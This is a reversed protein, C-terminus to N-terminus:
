DNAACSADHNALLAKASPDTKPVIQAKFGDKSTSTILGEFAKESEHGTFFDIHGGRVGGGGKDGAFVYGDHILERGQYTFPRGRLDPIYLVTEMPVYNADVAITRFPMMPIDRAGCGMPHALKKFRAKRTALKVTDSLSGLQEDCNVQEPGRADVFAYSTESGDANRISVSGQLAAACWDKVRLPASIPQDKTSILPAAASISAPAVDFIPTFYQTAWLRLETPKRSDGPDGAQESLHLPPLLRFAMGRDDVSMAPADPRPATPASATACASLGFLTALAFQRFMSYPDAAVPTVGLITAPEARLPEADAAPDASLARVDM